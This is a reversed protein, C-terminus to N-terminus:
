EFVEQYITEMELFRSGKILIVDDPEVIEKLKEILKEKSIFHFCPKLSNKFGKEMEKTLEGLLFLCDVKDKAYMGVELHLKKSSPGLEAMQGLVGIKKGKRKPNPIHKLAMKSSEVSANYMDKIIMMGKKEVKEYRMKPTSLEKCRKQLVNRSIGLLRGVSFAILLDELFHEEFFPPHINLKKEAKECISIQDKDIEIWIDKGKGISISSKTSKLLMQKPVNKILHEQAHKSHERKSPGRKFSQNKFPNWKSPYLCIKSALLLKQKEKAITQIDGLSEMHVGAIKTLVGIDPKLVSLLQDMDTPNSIGYELILVNANYDRNLVSLPLGIQSNQNGPTAYVSFSDKLLQYIFEKTTTKGLSGTVGIVLENKLSQKALDKLTQLVDEVFFLKLGYDSGSYTQPVVAISGKNEAVQELFDTGNVRKGPLAFFISNSNIKRSDVQYNAEKSLIENLNPDM